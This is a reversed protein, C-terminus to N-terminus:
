FDPFIVPYNKRSEATYEPPCDISGLLSKGAPNRASPKARIQKVPLPDELSREFAPINDYILFGIQLGFLKQKIGKELFRDPNEKDKISLLTILDNLVFKGIFPTGVNTVTVCNSSPVKEMCNSLVPISSYGSFSAA